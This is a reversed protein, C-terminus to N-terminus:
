EGAQKKDWRNEREEYLEQRNWRFPKGQMLEPRGRLSRAFAILEGLARESDHVTSISMETERALAVRVVESETTGRQRALRKLAQDQEKPIYLQKRVMMEGM